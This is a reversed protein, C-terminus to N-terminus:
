IKRALCAAFLSMQGLTTQRFVGSRRLQQLRRFMSGRRAHSFEDLARQAPFTLMERCERLGELNIDNWTVFRGALAQRIRSLRANWGTNAGQVNSEHQRYLVHPVPDYIVKGGIGAVIMYAFWDHSVFGTRAAATSLAEFARRNLMMTNGGAISQVLANRFDPSRQFLPSTGAVVGDRLILTSAGYLAPEFYVKLSEIAATLKGPLWIDDQDAFAYYDAVLECNILLTRFNEAASGCMATRVFFRGKRWRTAWYRLREVTGDTSMDDSVLVDVRAHTQGEISALQEDIWEIGNHTALLVVVLPCTQLIEETRTQIQRLQM